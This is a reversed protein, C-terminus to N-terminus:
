HKVKTSMSLATMMMMKMMMKTTMMMMMRFSKIRMFCFAYILFFIFM